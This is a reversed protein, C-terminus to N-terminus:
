TTASLIAYSQWLQLYNFLFKYDLTSIMVYYTHLVNILFELGNPFFNWFVTPPSKKSECQICGYGLIFRNSRNVACSMQWIKVAKAKVTQCGSNGYPNPVASCSYLMRHWVPTLGGYVHLPVFDVTIHCEYAAIRSVFVLSMNRHLPRGSLRAGFFRWTWTSNAITWLISTEVSKQQVLPMYLPCPGLGGITPLPFIITFLPGLQGNVIQQSSVHTKMDCLPGASRIRVLNEIANTTKIIWFVWVWGTGGIFSLKRALSKRHAVSFFFLNLIHMIHWWFTYVYYLNLVKEVNESTRQRYWEAVLFHVVANWADTAGAGKM